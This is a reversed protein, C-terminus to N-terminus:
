EGDEEFYGGDIEKIHFSKVSRVGVDFRIMLETLKNGDILVLRQTPAKLALAAQSFRSTTVFVGKTAGKTSLAGIFQQITSPGVVNDQAYRKAQIYVADLGLLDAKIVGDVGGDGSGGLHEAAESFTGGYGMKLLLEIILKEFFEPTSSAIVELLDQRLKGNLEAAAQELQEEPTADSALVAAAPSSGDVSAKSANFFEMFKPIKKLQKLGLESPSTALYGKGDSTARLMGRQPRMLLGAKVLYTAAWHIRNDFVRQKGSPLLQGREAESLGFEAALAADADKRKIDSTAALKLLPLMVGQYTPITM